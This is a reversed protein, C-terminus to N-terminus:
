PSMHVATPQVMVSLLFGDQARVLERAAPLHESSFWMEFVVSGPYMCENQLVRDVTSLWEGTTGTLPGKMVVESWCHIRHGKGNLAQVESRGFKTVCARLWPSLKQKLARSTARASTELKFRLWGLWSAADSVPGYHWRSVQICWSVPALALNWKSALERSLRIWILKVRMQHCCLDAGSPCRFRAQSVPLRNWPSPKVGWRASALCCPLKASLKANRNTICSRFFM